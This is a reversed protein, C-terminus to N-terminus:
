GPLKYVLVSAEGVSRLAADVDEPKVPGDRTAGARLEGGCIKLYLEGVGGGPPSLVVVYCGEPGVGTREAITRLLESLSTAKIRGASLPTSELLIKALTLPDALEESEKESWELPVDRTPQSAVPPHAEGAVDKRGPSTTPTEETYEAEAPTAREEREKKKAERYFRCKVYNPSGCPMVLPNVVKGSAKCYVAAGRKEGYPCRIPPM